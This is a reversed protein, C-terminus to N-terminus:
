LKRTTYQIQCQYRLLHVPLSPPWNPPLPPVQPESFHFVPFLSGSDLIDVACVRSAQIKYAAFPKWSFQSCEDQYLMFYFILPDPAETTTGWLFCIRPALTIVTIFVRSPSTLTGRQPTNGLMPQTVRVANQRIAIHLIAACDFSVRADWCALEAM